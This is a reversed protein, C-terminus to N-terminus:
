RGRGTTLVQSHPLGQFVAWWSSCVPERTHTNASQLCQPSETGRLDQTTSPPSWPSPASIFPILRLAGGHASCRPCSHTWRVGGMLPSRGHPAKLPGAMANWMCCTGSVYYAWLVQKNYRISGENVPFQRSSNKWSHTYLINLYSSHTSCFITWIVM